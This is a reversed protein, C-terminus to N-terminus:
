NDDAKSYLLSTIKESILGMLFITVLTTFLLASMNTVHDMSMFTYVYYLM